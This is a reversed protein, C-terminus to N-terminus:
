RRRRLLLFAFSMLVPALWASSGPGRAVSCGLYPRTPDTRAQEIWRSNGCLDNQLNCGDQYRIWADFVLQTAGPDTRNFLSRAAYFLDITALVAADVLEGIEARGCQDMANSHALGDRQEDFSGGIAEIFNTVHVISRLGDADSRITHSFTDQLVHAAVGLYYMPAWVDVDVQEYFDVFFRGKIIQKDPSLSWYYASTQMCDLIAARTGEVARRNGDEGDDDKGRLGHMYQGEPEPNAHLERLRTLNMVSHGDTDPARAGIVLSAFMFRQEEDLSSWPVGTADLVFRAVKQWTQSDPLQLGITPVDVLFDQFARGTISEHCGDGFATKVTYAQALPSVGVVALLTVLARCTKM